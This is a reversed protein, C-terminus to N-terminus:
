PSYWGRQRDLFATSAGRPGPKIFGQGANPPSAVWVTSLLRVHNVLNAGVLDRRPAEAFDLLAEPVGVLVPLLIGLQRGEQVGLDPREVLDDVDPPVFVEGIARADPTLGRFLRVPRRLDLLEDALHTGLDDHREREDGLGTGPLQARDVLETVVGQFRARQRVRRLAPLGLDALARLERGDHERAAHLKAAGVAEDVDPGVRRHVVAHLHALFRPL